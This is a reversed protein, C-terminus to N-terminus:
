KIKLFMFVGSTYVKKGNEKIWRHNPQKNYKIDLEFGNLITDIKNNEDFDDYIIQIKHTNRFRSSLTSVLNNIYFPHIELLINSKKQWPFNVPNLLDIEFGECDMFILDINSEFKQFEEITAKGSIESNNLNNEDFWSNIINHFSEDSEYVKISIPNFIYSLGAAYYGNNGGVLVVNRIDNNILHEFKCHLCSEYLGLIESVTLLKTAVEPIKLGSFPGFYIRNGVKEILSDNTKKMKNFLKM